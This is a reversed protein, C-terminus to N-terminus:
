GERGTLDDLKRFYDERPVQYLARYDVRGAAFRDALAVAGAEAAARDDYEDASRDVEPELYLTVYWPDDPRTQDGPHRRRRGKTLYITPMCPAPFADSDFVDPRYALVAREREDSWVVWGDALGEFAM